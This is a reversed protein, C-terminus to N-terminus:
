LGAFGLATDLVGNMLPICLVFVACRGALEAKTALASQGFDRCIDAVFGTLYSIGLSKLVVSFCEGWLEANDFNERFRVIYPYVSRLLFVLVLATAALSLLLAYEGRCSKLTIAFICVILVLAFVRFMDGNM